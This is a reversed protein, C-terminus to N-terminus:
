PEPNPQWFEDFIAVKLGFILIRHCLALESSCDFEWFAQDQFQGAVNNDLLWLLRYISKKMIWTHSLKFKEFGGFVKKDM